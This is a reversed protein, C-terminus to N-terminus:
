YEGIALNIVYYNAPSLRNEKQLYVYCTIINGTLGFLCVIVFLVTIPVQVEIVPFTFVATLNSINAAKFLTDNM